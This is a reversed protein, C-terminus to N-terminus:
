GMWGGVLGALYAAACAALAVPLLPAGALWLLVAVVFGVVSAGVSGASTFVAPITMAALVAYPVYFLFSRVFRSRIKGRVLTLPLMRILYTVAAMTLIYPWITKATM